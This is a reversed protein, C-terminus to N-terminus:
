EKKPNFQLPPKVAGGSTQSAPGPLTESRIEVRVSAPTKAGAPVKQGDKGEAAAAANGDAQEAAIANVSITVCALFALGTLLGKIM